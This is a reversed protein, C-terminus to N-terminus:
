ALQLFDAAVVKVGTYSFVHLVLEKSVAQDLQVTFM